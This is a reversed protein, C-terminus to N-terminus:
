SERALPAASGSPMGRAATSAAATCNETGDTAGVLGRLELRTGQLTAFLRDAVPLQRPRAALAREGRDCPADTRHELTELLALLEWPACELGIVGPWPRSRLSPEM